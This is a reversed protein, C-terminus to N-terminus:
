HQPFMSEFGSEIQFGARRLRNVYILGLCAPTYVGGKLGQRGGQLLTGAAEALVAATV